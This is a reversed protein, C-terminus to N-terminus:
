ITYETQQPYHGTEYARVLDALALKDAVQSIEEGIAQWVPRTLCEDLRTCSRTEDRGVCFVPELSGEAARLVQGVTIRGAPVALQYGGQNGRKGQIINKKKLLSFIQELYRDSQGTIASVERVSVLEGEPQLAIALVAELAYVGKTSLRM